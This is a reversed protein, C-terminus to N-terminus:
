TMSSWNWPNPKLREKSYERVLGQVDAVGLPRLMPEVFREFPSFSGGAAGRKPERGTQRRYERGLEAVYYRPWMRKPRHGPARPFESRIRRRQRKQDEWHEGIFVSNVLKGNRGYAMGDSARLSEVENILRELRLATSLLNAKPFNVRIIKLLDSRTIARQIYM